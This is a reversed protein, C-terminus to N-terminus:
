LIGFYLLVFFGDFIGCLPFHGPVGNIPTWNFIEMLNYLPETGEVGISSSFKVFGGDRGGGSLATPMILLGFSFM